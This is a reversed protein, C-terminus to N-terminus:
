SNYPAVLIFPKMYFIPRLTKESINSTTQAYRTETVIDCFVDNYINKVMDMKTFDKSQKYQDIPQEPFCNKFYPHIIATANPVNLDLNIPSHENLYRLGKIIECNLVGNTDRLKRLDYWPEEFINQYTNKFYWTLHTHSKGALYAAILQRHPTYRWNLCVFKKNFNETVDDANLEEFSRSNFTKLFLDDVLLQMHDEYYIYYKEVDYDCTHVRVNTLNNNQIYKLISDLEVARLHGVNNIIFEQDFEGYFEMSMRNGLPPYYQKGSEDYSCLPEYLYIDIGTTNYQQTLIPDHKINELDVIQGNYFYVFYPTGNNNIVKDIEKIRSSKLSDRKAPLDPFNMWHLNQWNDPVTLDIGTIQLTFRDEIGINSAAHPVDGRWIYYDGARWNVIGKGDIELYHGPKWDELMILVRRVDEYECENIERYRRFADTHEPMIDLTQMKYFSFTMNNLRFINNFKETWNPIVNRNDYMQGTFNKVHDYGQSIWRNTEETTIPQRVYNFSKYDDKWFPDIHGVSWTKQDHNM